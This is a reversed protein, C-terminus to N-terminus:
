KGPSEDEEASPQTDDTEGDKDASERLTPIFQSAFKNKGRSKINFYGIISFVVAGIFNVFLDAMTDYLGIDLYGNFPLHEGNITVDQIGSVYIPINSATPDLSVSAFSTIVTDKQMDMKFFYDMGFEFFEWLVGITMSFCFAALALYLPSLQFKIKSNQNLLDVLSFGVAAFLFGSTTHLMTDWFPYQIFYNRLEGLIEAAFIFFLIIIELTSPLKIQLKREIFDPVMYLFLVLLCLFVGEYDKQFISYVLDGAVALRLVIYVITVLTNNRMEDIVPHKSNKRKKM